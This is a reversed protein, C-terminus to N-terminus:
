HLLRKKYPGRKRGKMTESRHHCIWIQTTDAVAKDYNEIKSADECCIKEVAKESIM